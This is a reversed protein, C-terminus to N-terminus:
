WRDNYVIVLREPDIQYKLAVYERLLKADLSSGWIRQNYVAVHEGAYRDFLGEERAKFIWRWEKLIEEPIPPSAEENERPAILRSSGEASSTDIRTTETM